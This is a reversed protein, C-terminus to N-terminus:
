LLQGQEPKLSVIDWLEGHAMTRHHQRTKGTRFILGREELPKFRPSINNHVLQKQPDAEATELQTLPGHDYLIRLIKIDIKGRYKSANWAALHSTWPDSRRAYSPRAQDDDDSM